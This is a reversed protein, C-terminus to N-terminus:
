TKPKKTASLLVFSAFGHGLLGHVANRADCGRDVDAMDQPIEIIRLDGLNECQLRSEGFELIDGDAHGAIVINRAL